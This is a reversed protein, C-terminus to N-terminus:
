KVQINDKLDEITEITSQSTFNIIYSKLQDSRKNFNIKMKLSSLTLSAVNDLRYVSDFEIKLNDWSPKAFLNYQLRKLKDKRDYNFQEITIGNKCNMKLKNLKDIRNTFTMIITTTQEYVYDDYTSLRLTLGNANYDSSFKELKTKKYLITKNSGPYRKRYKEIPITLQCVWSNPMEFHKLAMVSKPDSLNLNKSYINWPEAVLLHEWYELNTLDFSMKSLSLIPKMNVWYNACNWLSEIKLYREDTVDHISGTSPEIFKVENERIIILVWSHVRSGHLEDPPVKEIEIFTVNNSVPLIAFM